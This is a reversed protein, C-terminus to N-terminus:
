VCTYGNDIIINQGRIGKAKESHLFYIVDVVEEPEIFRKNPIKQKLRYGELTKLLYDKSKDALIYSPSVANIRIDHGEVQSFEITLNKVLHILAAKSEGYALRNEHGVVGNQSACVVISVNKDFYPFLMRITFFVANLNIEITEKWETYSINYFGKMPNSGLLITVKEISGKEDLKFQEIENVNTMDMIIQDVEHSEDKLKDIIVTNKKKELNSLGKGLLGNGGIIFHM